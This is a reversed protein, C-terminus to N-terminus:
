GRTRGRRVGSCPNPNPYAVSEGGGAASRPRAGAGRAWGIAAHRPRLPGSVLGGHPYATGQRGPLPRPLRVQALSASPTDGRHTAREGDTVEALAVAYRDM